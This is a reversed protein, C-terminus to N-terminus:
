GRRRHLGDAPQKARPVDGVRAALEAREIHGVFLTPMLLLGHREASAFVADLNALQRPDIRDPEPQFDAWFLFLRVLRLGLGAIAEFDRDIRRADFEAWMRTFTRAPWYNLGLLFEDRVETMRAAGFASRLQELHQEEHALEHRVYPELEVPGIVEHRGRRSWGNTDLGRLLRVTEARYAEIEHLVAEADAAGDPSEAVWRDEDYNPLFPDEDLIMWKFRMGYVQVVDRVHKLVDIAAWADGDPRQLASPTAAGVAARFAAPMAALAAILEDRSLERDLRYLEFTTAM